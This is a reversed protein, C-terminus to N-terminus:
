PRSEDMVSRWSPLFKARSFVKDPSWDTAGGVDMYEIFRVEADKDRGFEILGALEDDNFGRLVVADIKTGRFGVARAARFERWCKRM